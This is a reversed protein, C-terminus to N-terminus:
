QFPNFRLYWIAPSDESVCFTERVSESVEGTLGDTSSVSVCANVPVAHIVVSCMGEM